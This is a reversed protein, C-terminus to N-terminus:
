RICVRFCGKGKARQFLAGHDLLTRHKKSHRIERCSRESMGNEKRDKAVQERFADTYRKRNM